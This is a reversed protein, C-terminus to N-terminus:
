WWHRLCENHPVDSGLHWRKSLNIQCLRGHFIKGGFLGGGQRRGLFHSQNKKQLLNSCGPIFIRYFNVMGLLRQLQKISNSMPFKQIVIIKPPYLPQEKPMQIIDLSFSIGFECKNLTIQFGYHILWQFVEELHDEHTEADENAVLM